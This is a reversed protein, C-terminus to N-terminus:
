DGGENRRQRDTAWESKCYAADFRESTAEDM